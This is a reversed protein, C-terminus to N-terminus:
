FSLSASLTVRHDTRFKGKQACPVPAGEVEPAGEVLQREMISRHREEFRVILPSALTYMKEKYMKELICRRRSYSNDM